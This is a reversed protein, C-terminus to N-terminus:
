VCFLLRSIRGSRRSVWNILVFKSLRTTPDHVRAFAYQMRGDSFEDPLEDLDGSGTSQVKLDNSTGQYSYVVWSVSEDGNLISRHPGLLGPDSLNV